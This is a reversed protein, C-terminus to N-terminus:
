RSGSRASNSSAGESARESVGADDFTAMEVLVRAAARVLPIALTAGTGEGLRLELDLLPRLGLYGLAASAGPETSRHGAVVVDIASPELVSAVLTGALSIVGDVVVPIRADAAGLVVGAIVAIEGGGLEALVELGDALHGARALAREVVAVKHALQADDVGTGRGTVERATRGTIAAIVAASPTTNGIGMDGTAVLDIGYARLSAVLSRGADVLARAEELSLAPEHVINGTIRRGPLVALAPHPELPAAIGADAVVVQAGVERAIANIAAGGALFNRVMQATVERPWPTVGEDVVGHDCAAVVVAPRQPVPPPSQGAIGALRVGLEELVGLSGQPKTLRAHRARAAEMAPEDLRFRAAM